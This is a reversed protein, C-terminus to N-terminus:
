DRQLAEKRRRRRVMMLVGVAAFLAPVAAINVFQLTHRADAPVEGLLRPMSKSRIESLAADQVLWEISSILFQGGLGALEQGYGLEPMPQFFDGSGVMLIRASAADRNLDANTRGRPLPHTDYYSTPNGELAAAVTWPGPSDLSGSKALVEYQFTPPIESRRRASADTQIVRHVKLADNEVASPKVIITSPAPLALASFNRMFPLTQDLDQMMFTAPHRVEAVGQATMALATVGREPDLVLDPRLELGYTEFVESLGPDIEKRFLPPQRGDFQQMFQQQMVVDITTASQYWGVNGGRQIFQDLAFIAEESFTDEANLIVLAAVDGDIKPSESALDVVQAEILKGYLQNFVPQVSALFQPYSVPGGFGGVFAVKRPEIVQLNLLARTFDYEFDALAGGAAPELDGVVELGEGMSFAVCKYVARVTVEDDSRRGIAVKDCGVSRADDGPSNIEYTLKGASARVYEDLTDAVAQPLNHMPAPLDPSIFAKVHVPEKLDRVADESAESLTYIQNDTLDVRVSFQSSIANILIAVGFAAAIMLAGKTGSVFKRKRIAKLPTQDAEEPSAEESTAEESTAEESSEDKAPEDEIPADEESPVEEPRKNESEESM